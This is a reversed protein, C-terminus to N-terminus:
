TRRVTPLAINDMTTMPVVTTGAADFAGVMRDSTCTAEGESAGVAAAIIVVDNIENLIITQRLRRVNGEDPEVAIVLADTARHVLAVYYGIFAGIDWVVM